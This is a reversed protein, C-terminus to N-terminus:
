VELAVDLAPASHTLRGISIRDVGTRAIARVNKLTVGGSVELLPMPRPAYPTPGRLVVAKRISKLPWNDLLIADPKAALTVNFERLSTVEVEVFSTPRMRKARAVADRITKGQGGDGARRGLARLHNTKILIAEALDARHNQGGGVRVAYKELARLGPLTKRTDLIHTGRGARDVCRRTLTAIGSLHGVFNLATREAALISGARGEVTMLVDGRRVRRGDQCRARCRLTGDFAEFTWGAVPLGACVGPARAVIRARARRAQPLLTRSTVDHSARDELLARRILPLTASRSLAM